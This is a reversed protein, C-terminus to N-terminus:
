LRRSVTTPVVLLPREVGLAGVKYSAKLGSGGLGFGQVVLHAVQLGLEVPCHLTGLRCFRGCVRRALVEGCYGGLHRIQGESQGLQVEFFSVQLLAHFRVHPLRGMQGGQVAFFQFFSDLFQGEYHTFFAGQHPLVFLEGLFDGYQFM